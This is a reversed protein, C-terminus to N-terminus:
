SQIQGRVQRTLNPLQKWQFTKSNGWMERLDVELNLEFEPEKRTKKAPNNARGCREELLVQLKRIAAKYCAIGPM